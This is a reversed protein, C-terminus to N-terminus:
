RDRDRFKRKHSQVDGRNRRRTGRVNNLFINEKKVGVQRLIENSVEVGKELKKFDSNTIPKEISGDPLVRGSSDDAIKTMLGLLRDRKLALTKRHVLLYLLMDLKMDIAPSIIFGHDNHFEDIVTAMGLEEGMGRKDSLGYTIVFLDAFLGDRADLGSKQLIVPSGLGGTALIVCDAKIEYTRSSGRVQVGRVEGNEHLVREVSTNTLIKAGSSRAKGLFNMATWKAGYRCGTVCAGCMRCRSFDVFKPMPKVDYGLELSADKLARTRDGFFNEPTDKVALEEEAEGFESSLNVGINNFEKQLARVGNGLSVM